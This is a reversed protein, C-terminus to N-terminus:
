GTRSGFAFLSSCMKDTGLLGCVGVRGGGICQEGRGETGGIGQGTRCFLFVYGFKDKSRPGLGVKGKGKGELALKPFGLRM